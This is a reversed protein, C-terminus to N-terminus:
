FHKAVLQQMKHIRTKIRDPDSTARAIAQEFAQDYFTEGLEALFLKRKGDKIRQPKLNSRSIAIMEADFLAANFPSLIKFASRSDFIAFALEGYLVTILETTREFLTAFDDLEKVPADRNQETFLNLFNALPKETLM